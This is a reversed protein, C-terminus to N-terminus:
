AQHYEEHTTKVSKTGDLRIVETTTTKAKFIPQYTAVTVKSGDTRTIETITHQVDIPQYKMLASSSSPINGRTYTSNSQQVNAPNNQRNQVLRPSCCGKCDCATRRFSMIISCLLWLSTAFVSTWAGMSFSCGPGSSGRYVLSTYAYYYCYTPISSPVSTPVPSPLLSLSLPSNTEEELKRRNNYFTEDETFPVVTNSYLLTGNSAYCEKGNWDYWDDDYFSEHEDTCAETEFILFTLSQCITTVFALSPILFRMWRPLVFISAVIFCLVIVGLCSAILGFSMTVYAISEELNPEPGDSYEQWFSYDCSDGWKYHGWGAILSVWPGDKVKVFKCTTVSIVSLILAIM